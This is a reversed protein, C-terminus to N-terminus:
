ISGLLHDFCSAEPLLGFKGSVAGSSSSIDADFMLAYEGSMAVEIMLPDLIAEAFDIMFVPQEPHIELNLALALGNLFATGVINGTEQMVSRALDDWAAPPAARQLVRRVIEQASQEDFLFLATGTVDCHLQILIAAVTVQPPSLVAALEGYHVVDVTRMLVTVTDKLWRSMSRSVQDAGHKGVLSLRRAQEGTLAFQSTSM